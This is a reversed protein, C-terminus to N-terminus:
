TQTCSFCLIGYIKDSVSSTQQSNMKNVTNQTMLIDKKFFLIQEVEFIEM